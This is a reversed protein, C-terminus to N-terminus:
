AIGPWCCPLVSSGWINQLRGYQSNEIKQGCCLLARHSVLGSYYAEARKKKKKTQLLVSTGGTGDSVPHIGNATAHTCSVEEDLHLTLFASQM